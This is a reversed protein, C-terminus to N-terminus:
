AKHKLRILNKERIKVEYKAAAELQKLHVKGKSTLKFRVGIAKPGWTETLIGKKVLGRITRKSVGFHAHLDLFPLPENLLAQFMQLRKAHPLRKAEVSGWQFKRGLLQTTVKHQILKGKRILISMFRSAAKEKQMLTDPVMYSSSVKRNPFSTDRTPLNDLIVNRSKLPTKGLFANRTSKPPIDEVIRIRGVSSDLVKQPLSSPQKPRNPNNFSPVSGYKQYKRKEAYSPNFQIKLVKKRSSKPL